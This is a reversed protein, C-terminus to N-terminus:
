REAVAAQTATKLRRVFVPWDIRTQEGVVHLNPLGGGEVITYGPADGDLGSLSLQGNQLRGNLGMRKYTLTKFLKMVAGQLGNAATGGTIISLNNAAHLSIKGGALAALSADFAVPNSGDLQLNNISGDLRGSMSGFNFADALPTLDLQHLAIDTAVGPNDGWPQRVSIHTLVATGDFAKITLEGNLAYRDGMWQMSSINGSLSGNIPTWDLTQNLLAMDVNAIDAALNVRQGVAAAPRWELATFQLQGKLLPMAVPSQLALVGNRSRWHSQAAGSSFRRLVLQNWNLTTLSKDGQAAWDVSGRLGSAQLQGTRDALDLGETHLMFSRWVDAAYDIHGDLEGTIKVGPVLAADLWPQAYRDYAAPFHAQFRDLKLKQLNGKADVALSGDLQLADLDDMHLRSIDVGGHEMNAALDLTVEHDPFRALVPGLQLQGGRVGGNLALQAPRATANLAFRAHGALGDGGVTGSPTTYKLEAATLDGSSEFGQDRVDLALDADLKGSSIHGAWVAGLLGQLWAAPLNKLNIQVHSPQDLPFATGIHTAGEDANVELTNASADMVLHVAANALAAGPAGSIQVTGDFLWRMRMDRRLNGDLNVSVHRWGMVPLDAKAAHLTFKVTNADVGPALQARVEQLSAGPLDIRKALVVTDARTSAGWLVCCLICLYLLPRSVTRFM